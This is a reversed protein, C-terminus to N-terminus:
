STWLISIEKVFYPEKNDSSHPQLLIIFFFVTKTIHTQFPSEYFITLNPQFKQPLNDAYVLPVM